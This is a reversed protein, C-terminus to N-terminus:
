RSGGKPLTISIAPDQFVKQATAIFDDLTLQRLLELEEEYYKLPKNMLANSQVYATLSDTDDLISALSTEYMKRILPLDETKLPLLGQSLNQCLGSVIGEIAELNDQETSCYINVSRDGPELNFSAYVDYALGRKLRIERFLWSNDSDGLRRCLNALATEEKPSLKPVQFEYLISGLEQASNETVYRGPRRRPKIPLKQEEQSGQFDSFAKAVAQVMAQHSLGSTVTLYARTPQFLRQAGEILDKLSIRPITEENGIIDLYLPDEPWIKEYLSDYSSAELDEKGERYESLIVKREREMEAKKFDAQTVMDRLLDLSKELEEPLATVTFGMEYTGTYANVHGGLEDLERNLREHDRTKTGTFVMHEIFHTLGKKGPPDLFSGGFFGLSLSMIGTPRHITIVQLGNALRSEKLDIESDM